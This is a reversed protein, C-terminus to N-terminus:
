LNEICAMVVQAAHDSASVDSDAVAKDGGEDDLANSIARVVLCPVKTIWAHQYLANSEMDISLPQQSKIFEFLAVPSPFHNSTVVRGQYVNFPMTSFEPYKDSPYTSPFFRPTATQTNPNVLASEFPTGAVADHISFIDADFTENAVVVDGISLKSDIAGATGSFFIAEFAHVAALASIVLAANTTGMGTCALYIEHTMYAYVRVSIGCVAQERVFKLATEKYYSQEKPFASLVLISM